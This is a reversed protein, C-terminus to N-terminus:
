FDYGIKEIVEKNLEAVVDIMRQDVYYDQYNLFERPSSNLYFLTVKKNPSLKKNVERELDEFKLYFNSVNLYSESVRKVYAHSESYFWDYFKFNKYGDYRRRTHEFHSVVRDWPNRVVVFKTSNSHPYIMEAPYAVVREYKYLGLFTKEMTMGACKPTRIYTLNSDEAHYLRLTM